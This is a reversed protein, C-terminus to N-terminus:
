VRLCGDARDCLGANKKIWVSSSGWCVLQSQEKTEPVRYQFTKDLKGQYIDVIINAYEAMGIEMGKKRDAM